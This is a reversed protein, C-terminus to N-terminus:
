GSHHHRRHRSAARSPKKERTKEKVTDKPKVKAPTSGATAAELWSRKDSPSATFLAKFPAETPADGMYALVPADPDVAPDAPPMPPGQFLADPAPRPALDLPRMSAFAASSATALRTRPLRDSPGGHVAALRAPAVLPAAREAHPRNLLRNARQAQFADPDPVPPLLPLQRVSLSATKLLSDEDGRPLPPLKALRPEVLPVAQPLPPAEVRPPPAILAVVPPPLRQIGVISKAITVEGGRLDRRGAFREFEDVWRAQPRAAWVIQSLSAPPAGPDRPERIMTFCGLSVLVFLSVAAM